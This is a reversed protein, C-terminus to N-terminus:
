RRHPGSRGVRSGRAAALENLVKHRKQGRIWSLWLVYGFPALSGLAALPLAGAPLVAVLLALLSPASFAAAVVWGFSILLASADREMREIEEATYDRVKPPPLRERLLAMAREVPAEEPPVWRFRLPTFKLLWSRGDATELGIGRETLTGRSSAFPSMFGFGIDYFRPVAARIESWPYFRRRGAARALLSRPISVGDEAIRLPSPMALLAAGLTLLFPALAAWAPYHQRSAVAALAGGAGFALLLATAMPSFRLPRYDFPEGM